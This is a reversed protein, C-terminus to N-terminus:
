GIGIWFEKLEVVCGFDRLVGKVLDECDNMKGYVKRILNEVGVELIIECYEFNCVVLNCFVM